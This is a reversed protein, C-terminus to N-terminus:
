GAPVAVQDVVLGGWQLLASADIVPVPRENLRLAGRLWRAGAQRLALPLTEPSTMPQRVLELASDVAIGTREGDFHVIVMQPPEWLGRTPIGLPGRVDVLALVDGRVAAFGIIHPPSGPVPVPARVRALELCQEAPFAIQEDGIQALVFPRGPEATVSLGGCRVARRDLIALDAPSLTQEFASIRGDPLDDVEAADRAHIRIRGPELIGAVEGGPLAVETRLLPAPKADPDTPLCHRRLAPELGLLVSAHLGIPHGGADAVIALDSVAAAPLPHRLCRAPSVVPVLEGRLDFAGVVWPATEELVTLRPLRTSERILRAELAYRASGETFVLFRDTESTATM